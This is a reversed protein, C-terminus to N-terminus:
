GVPSTERVHKEARGISIRYNSSTKKRDEACSTWRVNSRISEIELRLKNLELELCLQEIAHQRAIKEETEREVGPFGLSGERSEARKRAM